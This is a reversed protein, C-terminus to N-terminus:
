LLGKPLLPLLRSVKMVAGFLGVCNAQQQRWESNICVDFQCASGLGNRLM